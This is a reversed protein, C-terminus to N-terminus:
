TSELLQRYTGYTHESDLEEIEWIRVAIQVHTQVQPVRASGTVTGHLLFAPAQLSPFCPTLTVGEYLSPGSGEVTVRVVASALHSLRGIIEGKAWSILVTKPSEGTRTAFPYSTSLLKRNSGRSAAPRVNPEKSFTHVYAARGDRAEQRVQIEPLGFEFKMFASFSTESRLSYAEEFAVGFGTEPADLRPASLSWVVRCVLYIGTESPSAQLTLLQNPEPM